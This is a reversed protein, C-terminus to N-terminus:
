GDAQDRGKAARHEGREIRSAMYAYQTSLHPYPDLTKIFAVIQAREGAEISAAAPLTSLISRAVHALQIATSFHEREAAHDAKYREDYLAREAPTADIAPRAANMAARAAVFAEYAEAAKTLAERQPQPPQATSPSLSTSCAGLHGERRYCQIGAFIHPCRNESM